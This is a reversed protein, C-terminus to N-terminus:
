DWRIVGGDTEVIRPQRGSGFCDPCSDNGDHICRGKGHCIDDICGVVEGSGSCHLCDVWRVTELEPNSVGSCSANTIPGDEFHHELEGTARCDQCRLKVYRADNLEMSSTEVMQGACAPCDGVVAFRDRNLM